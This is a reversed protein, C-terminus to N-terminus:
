PFCLTGEPLSKNGQLGGSHIMLIKSGTEFFSKHVLDMVAYMAKATYVFDLPLRYQQWCNNIFALLHNSHRAYGGFHYDHLITFDKKENGLLNTVANELSFNNKMVSVGMCMRGPMSSQILGALMTGTGVACFIYNYKDADPACRLIESAGMVGPKGYGGEPVEYFGDTRFADFNKNRFDERGTFHLQMGLSAAYDLTHSLPTGREGRIVGTSELGYERCAFATAIIHNSYAGGYTIIGKCNNRRAEELYYKLKFWKNGSVTEHIEDLRLIDLQINQEKLLANEIHHIYINGPKVM